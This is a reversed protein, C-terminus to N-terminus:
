SRKGDRKHQVFVRQYTVVRELGLAALIKAAPETRGRIVDSVYMPSVGNAEAWIKQGGATECARRLEERVDGSTM